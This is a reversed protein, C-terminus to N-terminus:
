MGAQPGGVVLLCAPLVKRLDVILREVLDSNWIAASFFIAEPSDATLRLLTEYSSDNITGQVIEPRVEPLYKELENRLYFLALCSHTYRANLGVLKIHM